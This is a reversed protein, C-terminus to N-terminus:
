GPPVAPPGGSPQADGADYAALAAQRLRLLAALDDTSPHPRSLALTAADEVAGWAGRARKNALRRVDGRLFGAGAAFGASALAILAAPVRAAPSSLGAAGATGALLAAPFGLLLHVANWREARRHALRRQHVAEQRLRGIEARLHDPVPEPGGPTTTGRQPSTM